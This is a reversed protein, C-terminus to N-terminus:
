GRKKFKSKKGDKLSYIAKDKYGIDNYCKYMYGDSDIVYHDVFQEAFIFRKLLCNM